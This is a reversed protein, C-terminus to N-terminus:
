VQHWLYLSLSIINNWQPTYNISCKLHSLVTFLLQFEFEFCTLLLGFIPCSLCSHKLFLKIDNGEFQYLSPFVLLIEVLNGYSSLVNFHTIMTWYSSSPMLFITSISNMLLRWFAAWIIYCWLKHCIERRIVFQLSWKLCISVQGQRSTLFQM